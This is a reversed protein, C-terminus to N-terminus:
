GYRSELEKLSLPRNNQDTLHHLKLKGSKWLKYRGPGLIAKQEDATQSKLWDVYNWDGAVEGDISAKTDLPVSDLEKRLRRGTSKEILEDWTYTIPYPVTRCNFHYPPDGPYARDKIKSEPLPKGQLDWAGGSLAICIPTTRSDLTVNLGVGKVVDDNEEYLSRMTRVSVTQVATRVLAMAERKSGDFTGREYIPLVKKRGNVEVVRTRRTREGRIRKVIEDNTEGAAVGLRVQGSFRQRLDTAQKAWWDKAPSGQILANSVLQRLEGRTQATTFVTGKLGHNLARIGWRTQVDSLEVLEGKVLKHVQGYRTAITTRVQKLLAEARAHKYTDRAVGQIDFREIEEKLDQELLQLLGLVKSSLGASYRQLHISRRLFRGALADSFNAM